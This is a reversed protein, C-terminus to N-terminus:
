KLYWYKELVIEVENCNENVRAYAEFYEGNDNAYEIGIVLYSWDNKSGSGELLTLSRIYFGKNKEFAKAVLNMAKSIKM